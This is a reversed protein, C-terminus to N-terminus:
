TCAGHCLLSSQPPGLTRHPPDSHPRLPRCGRLGLDSTPSRAFPARSHPGRAEGERSASTCLCVPPSTPTRYHGQRVRLSLCHSHGPGRCWASTLLPRRRAHPCRAPVSPADRGRAPLLPRSIANLEADSRLVGGAPLVPRPPTGGKDAATLPMRGSKGNIDRCIRSFRARPWGASGMYLPCGWGM